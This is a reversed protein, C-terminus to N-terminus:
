DCRQAEGAGVDVWFCHSEGSQQDLVAVKVQGAEDLAPHWIDAFYVAADELSQAEPMMHRPIADQDPAYAVYRAPPEVTTPM